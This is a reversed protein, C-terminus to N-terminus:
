VILMSSFLKKSVKDKQGNYADNLLKQIGFDFQRWQNRSELWEWIGNPEDIKLDDM